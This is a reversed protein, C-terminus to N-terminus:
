RRLVEILHRLEDEVEEFRGVTNAIVSRVLERYRRRLRLVAVGVGGPSVGLHAAVREYEGPAPERSLFPSLAQFQESKDNVRSEDRLRVLAQDMVALAWRRDYDHEPDAGSEKGCLDEADEINLPLVGGGRKEAIERDYQNALFRSVATLLFSRFRSVRPEIGALWQKALLRAFFEQTLDQADAPKHGRRRIYAYVPRWYEQCLNALAEDQASGGAVGAAVVVSWHTTTFAAAYDRASSGPASMFAM